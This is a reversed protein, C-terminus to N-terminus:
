LESREDVEILSGDALRIVADTQKGTRLSRRSSILDGAGLETVADHDVLFMSGDVSQITAELGRDAILNGTIPVGVALVGLIVAAAAVLRMVSRRPKDLQAVRMSAAPAIEVGRAEMLVRRCALCERTHDEVLLARADSLEGAVLAPIVSQLDDCGHLGDVAAVKGDIRSWTRDIMESVISRDLGDGRIEDVIRDL